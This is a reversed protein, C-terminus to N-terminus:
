VYGLSMNNITALVSPLDTDEVGQAKLLDEAIGPDEDIYTQLLKM